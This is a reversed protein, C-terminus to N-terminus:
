LGKKNFSVSRIVKPTRHGGFRRSGEPANLAFYRFADSPHSAWDHVPRDKFVQLKEDWERHYSRLGDIGKEVEKTLNFRCLPLITRTAEIGDQILERKMVTFNIGLEAAIELRSRASTMERQQIDHPAYHEDYQYPKDNILKIWDVLGLNSEEMYDIIHFTGTHTPQVFWIATADRVGLDWYTYVPLMPDHAFDGMHGEKELRGIVDSYFAGEIAAEFSCYFEQLVKSESMGENRETQIDAESIVPTGDERKTDEVTLLQAFRSHDGDEYARSIHKYLHYGHNKGRPTYIFIAWGGNETLIPRMFDWAAPNSLSYESFVMGVYNTGVVADYNDSGALQLTSGNILEIFMESDNKRKILQPPFHDIFRMGDAGIGQWVIKRAQTQLPLFYVYNGVREMMKTALINIITKDKGARRHWVLAIRSAAPELRSKADDRLAPFMAKWLPKQYHRPKYLHPLKVENSATQKPSQIVAM